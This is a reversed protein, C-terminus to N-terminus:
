NSLLFLRINQNLLYSERIVNEENIWNEIENNSYNPGMFLWVRNTQISENLNKMTVEKTDLNAINLNRNYYELPFYYWGPYVMIKDGIQEKDSIIQVGGRWDEGRDSYYVNLSPISYFSIIILTFVILKIDFHKREIHVKETIELSIKRIALMFIILFLPATTFIVKPSFISYGFPFNIFSIVFPVLLFGMGISFIQMQQIDTIESKKLIFILYFIIIILFLQIIENSQFLIQYIASNLSELTLNQWANITLLNSATNLGKLLWPVFLIFPLINVLFFRLITGRKEKVTIFPILFSVIMILWFIFGYYHTYLMFVVVLAYLLYNFKKPTQESYVLKFAVYLSILNLFLLMSYMRAEQAYNLFFNNFLLLITSGFSYSPSVFLRLLLYITFLAFIGFLLSLFRLNFESDGFIKLWLSLLVYYLPPHVDFEGIQSIIDEISLLGVSWSYAEDLWLSRNLLTITLYTLSLFFLITLIRFDSKFFERGKIKEFRTLKQYNDTM